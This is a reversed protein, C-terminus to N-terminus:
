FVFAVRPPNRQTAHVYTQSERLRTYTDTAIHAHVRVYCCLKLPLIGHINQERTRVVEKRRGRTEETGGTVKRERRTRGSVGYKRGKERYLDVGASGYVKNSLVSPLNLATSLFLRPLLSSLNSLPVSFLSPSSLSPFFRSNEWTSPIRLLTSLIYQVTFLM